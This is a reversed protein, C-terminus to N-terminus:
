SATHASCHSCEHDSFGRTVSYSMTSVYPLGPVLTERVNEGQPWPQNRSGARRDTDSIIVTSPRHNFHFPSTSPMLFTFGNMAKCARTFRLARPLIKTHNPATSGPHLREARLIRLRTCLFPGRRQHLCSLILFPVYITCPLHLSLLSLTM